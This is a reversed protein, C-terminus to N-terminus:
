EIEDNACQAFSGIDQVEGRAAEEMGRRLSALAKKNKYLWVEHLPITTEPSLLIQGADNYSIEFRVNKLDQGFLGRLADIAKTLGIRKKADLTSEGVVKFNEDLLAETAPMDAVEKPGYHSTTAIGSPIYYFKGVIGGITLAM